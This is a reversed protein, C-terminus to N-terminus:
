NLEWVINRALTLTDMSPPPAINFTNNNTTASGGPAPAASLPSFDGGGGIPGTWNVPGPVMAGKLAALPGNIFAEIEPKKALLAEWETRVSAVYAANDELLTNQEDLAADLEWARQSSVYQADSLGQEADKVRLKAAALKDNFEPDGRLARQLDESADQQRETASAVGDNADALNDSADQLKDYATDGGVAQFYTLSENYEEQRERLDRQASGLSRTADALSRRADTVKEEDVAGERLLKTYEKRADSLSQESSTVARVSQEYARQAAPVALVAKTLASIAKEDEALQEAVEGAEGEMGLLSDTAADGGAAFAFAGKTVNRLLDGLFPIDDIGRAATILQSMMDAAKSLMPVLAEGAILALAQVSDQLDDMSARYDDLRQKDQDDFIQGASEADQYLANIGARERELIPILATGSKGFADTLLQARAAPDTTANYADAVNLLTEAVNVNGQADRAAVIGHERLGDSNEAVNRTLKFMSKTVVEASIGFDDTAAIIRSADEMTGGIARQLNVVSGVLETYTNAAYRGALSFATVGATAAALGAALPGGAGFAAQGAGALQGFKGSLGGVKTGLGGAAGGVRNFDRVVASTGVTELMIALRESMAM